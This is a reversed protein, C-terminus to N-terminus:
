ALFTDSGRSSISLFTAGHYQQMMPTLKETASHKIAAANIEKPATTM